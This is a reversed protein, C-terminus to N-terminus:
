KYGRIIKLIKERETLSPKNEQKYWRIMTKEPVQLKAAMINIYERGKKDIFSKLEPVAKRNQKYTM